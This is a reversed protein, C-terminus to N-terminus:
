HRSKREDIVKRDIGVSFLTYLGIDLTDFPSNLGTSEYTFPLFSIM